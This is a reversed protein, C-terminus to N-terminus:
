LNVMPILTHVYLIKYLHTHMQMKNIQNIIHMHLCTPLYMTHAYMCVGIFNCMCIYTLVNMCTYTHAYIFVNTLLQLTTYAASFFGNLIFNHKM